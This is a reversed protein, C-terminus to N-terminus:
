GENKATYQIRMLLVNVLLDTIYSDEASDGSVWDLQLSHFQLHSELSRAKLTGKLFLLLRFWRWQSVRKSPSSGPYGSENVNTNNLGSCFNDGLNKRKNKTSKGRLVLLM